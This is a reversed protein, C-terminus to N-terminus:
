TLDIGSLIIEIAITPEDIGIRRLVDPHIEGFHGIQRSGIRVAACRGDIFSPHDKADIEFDAGLMGNLAQFYAKMANFNSKAGTEVAALHYEEFVANDRMNFAMDIEFLKQPMKEMKSLSINKLLSPILWTRMMSVSSSVANKIKIYEPAAPVRMDVFNAKENTLFSNLMEIFGLGSMIRAVKRNAVTQAELAGQRISPVAIPQIYDYGYAIAIDEILDQDNLVDARYVPVKVRINKGVLAGDYGIKNVLSIVNKYGILVGIESEAQLVPIEIEASEMKPAIESGSGYEISVPLVDFGLDIFMAALIDASKEIVYKSTGTIDIFLNKTGVGVKTRDSNLVPILAITGADDKLTVYRDKLERHTIHGYAIGKEHERVVTSFKMSKNSNLPTFEEDGSIGYHLRGEVKDFDHIGIAIKERKRGYTECLKETFNIADVLSEKSFKVNKVVLGSIFPRVKKVMDDVSISAAAQQSSLRYAYKSSRHMFHKLARAYGVTGLMDPRNAPFEISIERENMSELSLGMKGTQDRLANDDLTYGLIDFLFKKDFTTVPM